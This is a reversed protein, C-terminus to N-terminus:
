MCVHPHSFDTLLSPETLKLQCTGLLTCRLLKSDKKENHLTNSFYMSIRELDPFKLISVDLHTVVNKM